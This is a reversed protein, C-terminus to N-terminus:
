KLTGLKTKLDLVKKFISKTKTNLQYGMQYNHALWM